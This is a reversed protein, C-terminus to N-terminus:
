NYPYIPIVCRKLYPPGKARVGHFDSRAQQFAVNLAQQAQWFKPTGFIIPLALNIAYICLGHMGMDMFLDFKEAYISM